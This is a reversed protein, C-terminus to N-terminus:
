KAPAVPNTSASGDIGGLSQPDGWANNYMMGGGYGGYYGGRHMQGFISEFHGKIEGIQYAGCVIFIYIVIKVLCKILHKHSHGCGGKEGTVNKEISCVGGACEKNEGCM